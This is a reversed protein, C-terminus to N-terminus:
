AFPGSSVGGSRTTILARVRGAAPWDPVIWDPHPASRVAALRAAAQFGGAAAGRIAAARRIGPAHVRAEGRAAGPAEADDRRRARQPVGPRGRPSARAIAHARPDSAHTGYRPQVRAAVRSLLAEGGPLTDARAAGLAGGGHAHPQASRARG